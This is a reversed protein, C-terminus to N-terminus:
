ANNKKHREYMHWFILTREYFDNDYQQYFKIRSYIYDALDKLKIRKQHENIQCQMIEYQSLTSNSNGYKFHNIPVCILIILTLYFIKYIPKM